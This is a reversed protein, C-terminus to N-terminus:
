GILLYDEWLTKFSDFCYRAAERSYFCFRSGVATSTPWNAYVNFSLGFGSTRTGDKVIDPWLEYKIENHDSWNPKWGNNIAEVIIVLKYHALLANKHKEPANSFDPIESSYGLVKCAEEFSSVKNM